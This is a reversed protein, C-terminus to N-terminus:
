SGSLALSDSGSVPSLLLTDTGGSLLLLDVFSAGQAGLMLRRDLSGTGVAGLAELANVIRLMLGREGRNATPTSAGSATELALATRLMYGEVNSNASTSAGALAESAVAIRKWYGTPSSNASTVAGAATELATVTALLQVSSAM